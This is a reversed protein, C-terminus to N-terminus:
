LKNSDNVIWTTRRMSTDKGYLPYHLSQFIAHVLKFLHENLLLLNVKCYKKGSQTFLELQDLSTFHLLYM